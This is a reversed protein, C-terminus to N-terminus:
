LGQNDLGEEALALKMADAEGETAIMREIWLRQLSLKEDIINLVKPRDHKSSIEVGLKNQLRYLAERAELAQYNKQFEISVLDKVRWNNGTDFEVDRTFVSTAIGYKEDFYRAAIQNQLKYMNQINEFARIRDEFGM